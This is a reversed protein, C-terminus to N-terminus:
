RLFPDKKQQPFNGNDFYILFASISLKGVNISEMARKILNSTPLMSLTSDRVKISQTCTRFSTRLALTYDICSWRKSSKFVLSLSM